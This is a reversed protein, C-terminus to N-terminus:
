ARSASEQRKDRTAPWHKGLIRKLWRFESVIGRVLKDETELLPWTYTEIVLHSTRRTRVVEQVAEVTEHRTTQLSRWEKLHVPVHYHSRIESVPPHNSPTLRAPLEDLDLGRWVVQRAKNRACFQHFYRPENMERFETYAARDQEPNVLAIANTVHVKGVEIGARWLQRLSEVLDQFLVSFHCTDFNVTFLKRLRADIQSPTLGRRSWLDRAAPLLNWEFFSVVDHATELTTDPEPEVALVITKGTEEEIRLLADLTAMYNRAMQDSTGRDHAVRRFCGGSTSISGQVGEPLLDTFIEAIATTWRSREPEMWSPLYVQEKVRRAHFDLLPFANISFCVLGNADLYEKFTKRANPRQLEKASGIGLRLELGAAADGFVQQKIPITYEELFRYVQALTEGRHVNTSYGVFPKWSPDKTGSPRDHYKIMASLPPNYCSGFVTAFTPQRPPSEPSDEIELVRRAQTTEGHPICCIATQRIREGEREAFM